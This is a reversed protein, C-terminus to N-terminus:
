QEGMRIKMQENKYIGMCDFVTKVFLVLLSVYGATGFFWMYTFMESTVGINTVDALTAMIASNLVMLYIGVSIISRKIILNGVPNHIFDQTFGLYLLTAMIALIFITIAISSSSDSTTQVAKGDETIIFMGADFGGGASGNCQIIYAYSGLVSFNGGGIYLDFELGNSDWGMYEELIHDGTRNYIHLFCKTTENTIIIGDTGNIVHTHLKFHDGQKIYEYQPYEIVLGDPADTQQVPKVACVAFALFLFICIWIPIQKNM